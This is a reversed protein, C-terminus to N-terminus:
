TPILQTATETTGADTSIALLAGITSTTFTAAGHNGGTPKVKMAREATAFVATKFKM